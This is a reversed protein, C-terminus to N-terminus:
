SHTYTIKFVGFGAEEVKLIELNSVAATDDDGCFLVTLKLMCLQANGKFTKSQVNVKNMKNVHERMKRFNAEGSGEEDGPKYNEDQKEAPLGQKIRGAKDESEKIIREQRSMQQGKRIADWGVHVKHENTDGM